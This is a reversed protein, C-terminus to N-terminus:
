SRLQGKVEVGTARENKRDIAPSEFAFFIRRAPRATPLSPHFSNSALSTGSSHPANAASMVRIPPSPPSRVTPSPSILSPAVRLSKRSPTLGSQSTLELEEKRTFPLPSVLKNKRVPRLIQRVERYENATRGM